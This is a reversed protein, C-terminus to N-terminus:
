PVYYEDRVPVAARMSPEIARGLATAAVGAYLLLEAGEELVTLVAVLLARDPGAGLWGALLDCGLSIALGALLAGAARRGLCYAPWNVGLALLVLAGVLLEATLKAVVFGGGPQQGAVTTLRAALDGAEIVVLTAPLAALTLLRANRAFVAIGIAAFAALVLMAEGWLAPLSGDQGPNLAAALGPVRWGLMEVLTVAAHLGLLVLASGVAVTQIAATASPERWTEAASTLNM